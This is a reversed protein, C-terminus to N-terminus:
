VPDTTWRTGFPFRRVLRGPHAVTAPQELLGRDRMTENLFRFRRYAPYFRRVYRWRRFLTLDEILDLLAVSRRALAGYGQFFSRRDDDNDDTWAAATGVALARAQAVSLLFFAVDWYALGVIAVERDFALLGQGTDFLNGPHFDGHLMVSAPLTARLGGIRTVLAARAHNLVPDHTPRLFPLNGIDQLTQAARVQASHLRALWAGAKVLGQRRLDGSM